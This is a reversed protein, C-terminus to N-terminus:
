EELEAPEAPVGPSSRIRVSARPAAGVAVLAEVVEAAEALVPLAVLAQSKQHLATEEMEAGVAMTAPMLFVDIFERM